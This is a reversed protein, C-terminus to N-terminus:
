NPASTDADALQFGERTYDTRLKLKDTFGKIIQDHVEKGGKSLAIFNAAAWCLEEIMQTASSTGETMKKTVEVMIYCHLCFLPVAGGMKACTASSTELNDAIETKEGM